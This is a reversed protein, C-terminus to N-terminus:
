LTTWSMFLLLDETFIFGFIILFLFVTIFYYYIPTSRLNQEIIPNFDAGATTNLFRINQIYFYLGVFLLLFFFTFLTFFTSNCLLVFIFIKSFFGWFPPVGAMSFLSIIIVRTFYNNVGLSSFSYLTKLDFSTFQFLTYFIVFLSLNYILM